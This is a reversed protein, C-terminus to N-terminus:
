AFPQIGACGERVACIDCAESEKTVSIWLEVVPKTEPDHDFPFADFHVGVRLHFRYGLNKLMTYPDDRWLQKDTMEFCMWDCAEFSQTHRPHKTPLRSLDTHETEEVGITYRFGGESDCESDWSGLGLLWASVSSAQKLAELSGDAM